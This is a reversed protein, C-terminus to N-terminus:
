NSISKDEKHYNILELINKWHMECIYKTSKTGLKCKYPCDECRMNKAIAIAILSTDYKDM